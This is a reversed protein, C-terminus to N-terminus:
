FQSRGTPKGSPWMMRSITESCHVTIVIFIIFAGVIILAISHTSSAVDSPDDSHYDLLVAFSTLHNCKCTINHLQSETTCGSESWIGHSTSGKRFDWFACKGSSNTPLTTNQFVIIVPDTLNEITVNVVEIGSILNNLVTSNNDRQFLKTNGYIVFIIRSILVNPQEKVKDLLTPPLEIEVKRAFSSVNKQQILDSPPFHLGPFKEAEIKQIHAFYNPTSFSQNGGEIEIEALIRELTTSDPIVGDCQGLFKKVSDSNNMNKERSLLQQMMDRCMQNPDLNQPTPNNGASSSLSSSSEPPTECPRGTVPTTVSVHNSLNSETTIKFPDGSPFFAFIDAAKELIAPFGAFHLYQFTSAGNGGSDWVSCPPSDPQFPVDQFTVTLPSTLDDIMSDGVQISVDPSVPNREQGWSFNATVKFESVNMDLKIVAAKVNLLVFTESDMPFDMDMLVKRLDSELGVSINGECQGLIRNTLLMAYRADNLKLQGKRTLETLKNKQNICDALPSEWAGESGTFELYSANEMHAPSFDSQNIYILDRLLPSSKHSSSNTLTFHQCCKGGTSMATPYSKGIDGRTIYLQGVSGKWTICIESSAAPTPAAPDQTWSSSGNGILHAEIELGTKKVSVKLSCPDPGIYHHFKNIHSNLYGCVTFEAGVIAPLALGGRIEDKKELVDGQRNM